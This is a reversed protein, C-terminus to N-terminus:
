NGYKNQLQSPQLPLQTFSFNGDHGSLESKQKLGPSKVDANSFTKEGLSLLQLAPHKSASPINHNPPPHLDLTVCPTGLGLGPLPAKDLQTKEKVQSGM